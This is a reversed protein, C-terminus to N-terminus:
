HTKSSVATWLRGTCAEVTKREGELSRLTVTHAQTDGRWSQSCTCCSAETSLTDCLSACESVNLVDTRCLSMLGFDKCLKAPLNLCVRDWAMLRCRALPLFLYDAPTQKAAQASDPKSLVPCRKFYVLAFHLKWVHDRPINVFSKKRKREQFQLCVEYLTNHTYHRLFYIVCTTSLCGQLHQTEHRTKDSKADLWIEWAQIILLFYYQNM